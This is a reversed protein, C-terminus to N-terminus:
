LLARCTKNAWCFPRRKEGYLNLSLLLASDAFNPNVHDQGVGGGRGSAHRSPIHPCYTAERGVVGTLQHRYGIHRDGCYLITLGHSTSFWAPGVFETPSAGPNSALTLYMSITPLDTASIFPSEM